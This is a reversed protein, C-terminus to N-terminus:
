NTEPALVPELEFGITQREEAGVEFHCRVRAEHPGVLFTTLTTRDGRHCELILTALRQQDQVLEMGRLFSEVSGAGPRRIRHDLCERLQVLKEDGQARTRFSLSITVKGRRM